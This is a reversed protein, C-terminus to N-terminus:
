DPLGTHHHSDEDEGPLTGEISGALMVGPAPAFPSALQLEEEALHAATNDTDEEARVERARAVGISNGGVTEESVVLRDSDSALLGGPPDITVVGRVKDVNPVIAHVFPILSEAGNPERLVLLDQAAGHEVGSITGVETGDPLQAKMGVLEHSYWADAEDSDAVSITLSLGRLQEATTRDGIGEFRAVWRGQHERAGAVTLPGRDPDTAFTAGPTLRAAPDDTRVDLTVEGRLGHARGITAVILEM